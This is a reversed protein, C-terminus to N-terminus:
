LPLSTKTKPSLLSQDILDLIEADQNIDFKRAFLKHSHALKNADAVTLSKPNAGGQSWDIYRYNDNVIRDKYPSNMLITSILFEDSGWTFQTFRRLKSNKDIFEILYNACDNSMTWWSGYPGGYLTYPLPFKRKPLVNNAIAQLKYQGKFNFYTTHYQEVRTIAHSWWSSGEREFSLFSCGIHRAFFNYISEVPKIPYDQGSLLNIFDYQEDTALIERVGQLIAETFRYSAWRVWHRKEIFKVRPIAALHAYEDMDAKKDLHIYFDFDEHALTDILRKVQSPNKHVMILHAMKM